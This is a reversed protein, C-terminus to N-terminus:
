FFFNQNISKRSSQTKIAECATELETSCPSGELQLTPEESCHSRKNCLVPESSTVCLSTVGCCTPDERAWFRVHTGQVPLCIRLWQTVLVGEPGRNVGLTTEESEGLVVARGGHVSHIRHRLGVSAGGKGGNGSSRLENKKWHNTVKM